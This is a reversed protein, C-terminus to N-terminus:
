EQMLLPGDVIPTLSQIQHLYPLMVAAAITHAKKLICTTNGTFPRETGKQRLVYYEEASLQKQWEQESKVVEFSNQENSMETSNQADCSPSAFLLISLLIVQKM